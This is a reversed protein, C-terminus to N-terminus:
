NEIINIMFKKMIQKQHPMELFEVISNTVINTSNGTGFFDYETLNLQKLNNYDAIIMESLKKLGAINALDIDFVNRARPRDTQRDGINISPTGTFATEFIGASSNGVVLCNYHKLIGLFGRIGLSKVIKIKDNKSNFNELYETIKQHGDDNNPFTIVIQKNFSDIVDLVSKFNEFNEDVGKFQSPHFTYLFIIDDELQYKEYLEIKTEVNGIRYNDLSVNGMNRCRWEEEGMRLLNNYSEKNSAFHLNAIKTISHRINTDFYPVNSIDGGFLHCVPVQSLFSSISFAYTEIRDGLVLTLDFPYTKSYRKFFDMGYNFNVSFNDKYYDNTNNFVVESISIALQHKSILTYIEHKTEWPKQVHAGSLVLTVNFIDSLQKLIPFLIGFEARNGTFVVIRKLNLFKNIEILSKTKLVEPIQIRPYYKGGENKIFENKNDLKFHKLTIVAWQAVKQNFVDISEIYTQESDMECDFQSFIRGTDISKDVEHITASWNCCYVKVQWVVPSVGRFEPLKSTHLNLITIRDLITSDFIESYAVSFGLVNKTLIDIPLEKHSKYVPINNEIALSNVCNFYYDDTDSNYQTVVATIKFYWDSLFLKLVNRGLGWNAFLIIDMM